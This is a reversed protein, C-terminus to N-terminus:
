HGPMEFGSLLIVDADAGAQRLPISAQYDASRYWEQAADVSDFELIVTRAAGWTGELVQPADDAVVVRGGAQMMTPFSKQAYDDMSAQDRIPGEIFIVYGKPM